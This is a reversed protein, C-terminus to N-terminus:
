LPSEGQNEPIPQPQEEPKQVPTAPVSNGSSKKRDEALLADDDIAERIVDFFRGAFRYRQDETPAQKWQRLIYLLEESQYQLVEGFHAQHERPIGSAAALERITLGSGHTLDEPLAHQRDSLWQDALRLDDDNLKGQAALVKSLTSTTGALLGTAVTTGGGVSTVEAACAWLVFYSYVFISLAAVLSSHALARILRKQKEALRTM